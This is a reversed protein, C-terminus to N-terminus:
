TRATAWRHLPVSAILKDRIKELAGKTM